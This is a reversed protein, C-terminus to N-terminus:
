PDKSLEFTAKSVEAQMSHLTLHMSRFTSRTLGTDRLYKSQGKIKMTKDGLAGKLYHKHQLRQTKKLM